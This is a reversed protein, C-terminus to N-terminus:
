NMEIEAMIWSIVLEMNILVSLYLICTGNLEAKVHALIPSLDICPLTRM